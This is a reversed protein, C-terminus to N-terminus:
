VRLSLQKKLIMDTSSLLSTIQRQSSKRGWIKCMEWRVATSWCREQLLAPAANYSATLPM